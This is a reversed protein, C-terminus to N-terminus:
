ARRRLGKAESKREEGMVARETGPWRRADLEADRTMEEIRAELERGVWWGGNEERRKEGAVKEPEVVPAAKDGFVTLPSRM